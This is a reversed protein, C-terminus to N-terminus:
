AQHLWARTGFATTSAAAVACAREVAASLVPGTVQDRRVGALAHALAGHFVDGAGLTDAAEVQPPQVSGRAGATWWLAPREGRTVVVGRAGADLLWRAVDQPATVPGAPGTVAGCSTARQSSSAPARPTTTVRPSRGARHHVAPARPETWGGCTSAASVRPAPSTKWPARAWARAPTRRSWTVPGTSLAATSRAQATAAAEVVAKPVRAQSCWAQILPGLPAHAQSM